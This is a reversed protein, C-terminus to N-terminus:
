TFDSPAQTSTISTFRRRAAITAAFACRGGAETVLIAKIAIRRRSVREMRCRKCRYYGRGELWFDTM